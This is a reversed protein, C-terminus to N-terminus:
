KCSAPGVGEAYLYHGGMVVADRGGVRMKHGDELLPLAVVLERHGVGCGVDVVLHLPHGDVRLHPGHQRLVVPFLHPQKNENLLVRRIM